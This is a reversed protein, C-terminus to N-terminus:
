GNLDLDRVTWSAYDSLLDRLPDVVLCVVTRRGCEFSQFV